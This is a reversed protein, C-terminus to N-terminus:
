IAASAVSLLLTVIVGFLITLVGASTIKHGSIVVGTDELSRLHACYNVGPGFFQVSQGLVLPTDLDRAADQYADAVRAVYWLVLFFTLSLFIIVSSM